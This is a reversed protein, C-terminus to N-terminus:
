RAAVRPLPQAEVPPETRAHWVLGTASGPLVLRRYFSGNIQTRLVLQNRFNRYLDSDPRADPAAAWFRDLSGQYTLGAIDYLATGVVKTPISQGLASLGVTSNIVVVGRAHSILLPTNQDHIYIVRGDIGARTAHDAVHAAYDVYGRDMPHHKFVLLTDRPAHRAFSAITMAIFGRVGGVDAHHTVQSDNYVQLPVFFFRGSWEGALRAEIGREKWRYWQKRLPSRLWPFMERILLPRHHRYHPFLLNGFGGITFYLFGYFVMRWYAKQVAMRPAPKPAKARYADPTKPLGSNANVGDRELTVYDPRFYGEEFVGIEIGLRTAVRHAARHIPRCDGFLLVVDINLTRLRDALWSPWAEMTGRYAIGSPYFLWDGANFNIKHVQAGVATLDRALRNFFPGVPGQLLMVRKGRFGEIGDAIM